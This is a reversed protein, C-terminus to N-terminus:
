AAGHGKAEKREIVESIGLGLVGGLIVLWVSNVGLLYLGLAILAVAYCPVYRFASKVMGLVASFIIPVVAARVGIMAAEVWANDRIMTYAFTVLTLIAMPPIILGLVAAIGGLIGATRFGYLMAVNGIMTGPLSRGVSTFDLLEEATIEKRQEVYLQQMQAIISWGGGFTFCGFKMFDWFLRWLKQYRKM